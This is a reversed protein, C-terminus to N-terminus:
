YMATYLVIRVPSGAEYVATGRALLWGDARELTAIIQPTSSGRMADPSSFSFNIAAAAGDSQLEAKVAQEQASAESGGERLFVKLRGKPIADGGEYEVTGRIESSQSAGAGTAAAFAVSGAALLMARRDTRHAM